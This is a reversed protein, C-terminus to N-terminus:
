LIKGTIARNGIRMVLRDVASAQPLPFIYAGELWYSTPNHFHQRVKVRAILGSISIKVDSYQLPAQLMKDAAGVKFFLGAISRQKADLSPTRGHRYGQAAALSVWALTILGALLLLNLVQGLVTALGSSLARTGAPIKSTNKAM